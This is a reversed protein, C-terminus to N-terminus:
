DGREDEWQEKPDNGQQSDPTQPIWPGELYGFLAPNSFSHESDNSKISQTIMRPKYMCRM